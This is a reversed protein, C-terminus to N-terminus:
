APRKHRRPGPWFANTRAMYERYGPRREVIDKELLAVGSVRLLLLTMVIPGVLSWFAGAGCAILGFGWWVCAEGFYNPHRSWAWLGRDMVLGRNAPNRQFRALQADAFAEFVIGFLALIAGMADLPGLASNAAIAGLLPASAIWALAAQLGFVLYLSRWPFAASHRARMQAYRRDEGKGWNRQTIFAGLRFGWALVLGLVAYGREGLDPAHAAYLAAAVVFFGPWFRDALSADRRWLSALWALLALAAIGALGICGARLLAAADAM